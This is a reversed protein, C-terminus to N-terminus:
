GAEIMANLEALTYQTVGHADLWANTRSSDVTTYTYFYEYDTDNPQAAAQQLEIEIETGCVTDRYAGDSSVWIRGLTNDAIDPRLCTEYFEMAQRPTFTWTYQFLVRDLDFKGAEIAGYIYEETYGSGLSFGGWYYRGSSGYWANNTVADYILSQREKEGLMPLQAASVGCYQMLVFEEADAYGGAAACESAPMVSSVTCGSINQEAVPIRTDKRDAIAENCNIAEQLLQIDQRFVDQEESTLYYDRYVQQGSRFTYTLEVSASDDAWVRKMDNREYQAKHSVISKHATTVLGISEPQELKCSAGNCFVTVSAVRNADPVFREYGFLDFEMACMLLVIVLCCVCLGAWRGHFVRFSKRILMEAVFWGIVAGVLMLLLVTFFMGAPSRNELPQTEVFIFYYLVSMLLGCGIAMCWRFVPKLVNVAVVDGASEMRRRRYLLLAFFLFVLGVIAYVLYIRWGNFYCTGRVFGDDGWVTNRSVDCHMLIAVFPSLWKTSLALRQSTMGFVFMNMISRVIVEAGVFVFNLVAYVAPLIIINGTLQACFVAFGYFLLFPLSSLGFLQATASLDAVGFCGETLLALLAIVLNVALYPLLGALTVSFFVGERRVPLCAMGHASRPHYLFSWVAMASFVGFLASLILGGDFGSVLLDESILYRLQAIEYGAANGFENLLVIPVIVIWIALYAGWIPWFRGINKWFISRNFCSTKSPM